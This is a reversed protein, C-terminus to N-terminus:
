KWKWLHFLVNLNFRDILGSIKFRRKKWRSNVKRELLRHIDTKILKGSRIELQGDDCETLSWIVRSEVHSRTRITRWVGFTDSRTVPTPANHGSGRGNQPPGNVSLLWPSLRALLSPRWGPSLFHLPWLSWRTSATVLSVVSGRTSISLATFTGPCLRSDVSGCRRCFHGPQTKSRFWECNM